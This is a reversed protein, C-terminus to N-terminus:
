PALGSPGAPKGFLSRFLALDAFNVLGGSGNLDAAAHETGFAARFLALDAFNVPGGSNNLDGDCLNGYLDGDSDLQSPNPVFLCNDAVDAVGDNDDDADCVDGLGDEENDEQGANPILACNDCADGVGDGDGDAQDPNATVPCNDFFDLVGDADGDPSVTLLATATDSDIGDGIRYSFQDSGAYGADPTYYVGILSQWAADPVVVNLTGHAPQETVELTVPDAFGTDNFLIDILTDPLQPVVIHDDGATAPVNGVNISIIGFSVDGSGDMVRFYFQDLGLYGPDPTYVFAQSGTGVLPAFEVSGHVPAQVLTVTNQGDGTVIVDAYSV